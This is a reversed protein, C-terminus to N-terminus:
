TSGSTESEEDIMLVPLYANTELRERPAIQILDTRVIRMEAAISKLADEIAPDLPVGAVNRLM